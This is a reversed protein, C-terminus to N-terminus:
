SQPNFGCSHPLLLVSFPSWGELRSSYQPFFHMGRQKAEQNKKKDKGKVKKQWTPSLIEHCIGQWPLLVWIQICVEYVSRTKKKETENWSHCLILEPGFNVLDCCVLHKQSLVTIACSQPAELCAPLYRVPVASFIARRSIGCHMQLQFHAEVNKYGTRHTIFQISM